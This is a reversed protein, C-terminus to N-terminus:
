RLLESKLLFAGDTVVEEGETSAARVEVVDGGSAGIEVTRREFRGDAARVFM